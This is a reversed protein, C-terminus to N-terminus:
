VTRSTERDQHPEGSALVNLAELYLALPLIARLRELAAELELDLRSQLAANLATTHVKCRLPRRTIRQVEACFQEVRKSLDGVKALM